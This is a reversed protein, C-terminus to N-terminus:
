YSLWLETNPPSCDNNASDGDSVSFPLVLQSVKRGPRGVRLVGTAPAGTAGRPGPAGRSGTAGTRGQGTAGQPYPFSATGM